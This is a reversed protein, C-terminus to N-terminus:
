PGLARQADDLAQECATKDGASDAARARSMAQRVADATQPSVEGLKEEAAAISRPTPQVSMGAGVGERATPGAAAKAELKANIRAMMNGIEDSCPGAYSASISAALAIASIVLLKPATMINEWSPWVPTLDLVSTGKSRQRLDTEQRRIRRTLRETASESGERSAPM